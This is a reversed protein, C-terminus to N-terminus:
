WRFVIDVCLRRTMGTSHSAEVWQGSCGRSVVSPSALTGDLTHLPEPAASSSVAWPSQSAECVAQRSVIVILGLALVGDLSEVLAAVGKVFAVAVVCARGATGLGAQQAELHLLLALASLCVPM